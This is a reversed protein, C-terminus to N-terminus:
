SPSWQRGPHVARDHARLRSRPRRGPVPHLGNIARRTWSVTRVGSPSAPWIPSPSRWSTWACLGGSGRPLQWEVGRPGDPTIVPNDVVSALEHGAVTAAHAMTDRVAGAVQPSCRLSYADQVRTCADPDRHSERIGSEALLM